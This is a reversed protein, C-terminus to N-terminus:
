IRWSRRIRSSVTFNVCKMGEDMVFPTGVEIIDVHEAVKDAFRLADVLNMEDLALQLKM